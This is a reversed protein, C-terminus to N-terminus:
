RAPLRRPDRWHGEQVRWDKGLGRCRLQGQGPQPVLHLYNAQDLAGATDTGADTLAFGDRARWEHEPLRLMTVGGREITEVPVLRNMDLRHPVKFLMGRRHRTQGAPAVSAWAGYRLATQIAATNAPEDDLWRAVHAAYRLEWALTYPVSSRWIRTPGAGILAEIEAVLASGDLAAAADEKIEKVARRQVFLRKTSFLPASSAQAAGADGEGRRRHWCDASSIRSMRRSTSSCTAKSKTRRDRRTGPARAAMLRDHLAGDGAALHVVFARDLRVLGDRDYLDAFRSGTFQSRPETM